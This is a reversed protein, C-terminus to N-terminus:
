ERGFLRSNIPKINGENIKALWTFGLVDCWVIRSRQKQFDRWNNNGEQDPRWDKVYKCRLSQARRDIGLSMPQKDEKSYKFRLPFSKTKRGSLMDWSELRRLSWKSPQSISWDNSFTGDVISEIIAFLQVESILNGSSCNQVKLNSWERKFKWHTLQKLNALYIALLSLM